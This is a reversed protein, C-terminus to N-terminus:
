EQRLRHCLDGQFNIDGNVDLTFTPAGTLIGFNGTAFYPNIGEASYPAQYTIIRLQDLYSQSM